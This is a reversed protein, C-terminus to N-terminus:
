NMLQRDWTEILRDSEQIFRNYEHFSQPNQGKQQVVFGYVKQIMSLIDSNILLNSAQPNASFNDYVSRIGKLKHEESLSLEKKTSLDLYLPLLVRSMRVFRQLIHVANIREKISM